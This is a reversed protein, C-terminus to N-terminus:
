TNENKAVVFTRMMGTNSAICNPMTLIAIAAPTERPSSAGPRERQRRGLRSSVVQSLSTRMTMPTASMTDPVFTMSASFPAM